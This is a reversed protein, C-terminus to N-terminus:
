TLSVTTEQGASLGGVSGSGAPVGDISWAYGFAGVAQDGRNALHGTFTVVEGANPWKQTQTWDYRPTREIYLLDLDPAALAATDPRLGPLAIPRVTPPAQMPGMWADGNQEPPTTNQPIPAAAAPPVLSLAAICLAMRIGSGTLSPRPRVMLIEM